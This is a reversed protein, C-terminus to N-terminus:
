LIMILATAIVSVSFSAAIYRYTAKDLKLGLSRSIRVRSYLIILDRVLLSMYGWELSISLFVGGFLSMLVAAVQWPLLLKGFGSIVLFNSLTWSLSGAVLGFSMLSILQPVGNWDRFVLGVFPAVVSCLLLQQIISIRLGLKIASKVAAKSIESSTRGMVESRLNNNIGSSIADGITRTFSLALSYIGLQSAGAVLGLVLRDSQGQLWGFLSSLMTTSVPADLVASLNGSRSIAKFRSVGALFFIEAVLTQINAAGAGLHPLLAIAVFTAAVVSIAQIKFIKKWDGQAEFQAQYLMSFCTLLPVPVLPVLKLFSIGTESFALSLASILLLLTSSGAFGFIIIRRILKGPLFGSLTVGAIYQRLPSDTLSLILTLALSGFAYLGLEHSGSIYALALAVISNSARYGLRELLSFVKRSKM